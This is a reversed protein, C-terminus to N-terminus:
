GATDVQMGLASKVMPEWTARIAAVEDPSKGYLSLLSYVFNGGGSCSMSHAFYADDHERVVIELQAPPQSFAM